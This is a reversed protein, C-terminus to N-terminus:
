RMWNPRSAPSPSPSVLQFNRTKSTTNKWSTVLVSQWMTLCSSHLHFSLSTIEHPAWFLSNVHTYKETFRSESWHRSYYGRAHRLNWEGDACDTEEWPESQRPPNQLQQRGFRTCHLRRERNRHFSNSYLSLGFTPSPFLSFFHWYLEPENVSCWNVVVTQSTFIWCYQLFCCDLSRRSRVSQWTPFSFSVQLVLFRTLANWSYKIWQFPCCMLM